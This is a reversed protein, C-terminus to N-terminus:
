TDQRAPRERASPDRAAVAKEVYAFAEEAYRRVRDLDPFPLAAAQEETLGTGAERRGLDLDPGWGWDQRISTREWVQRRAIDARLGTALEAIIQAFRDDWRAIHWLQWLLSQPGGRPRWRAQTEGVGEVCRLATMHWAHFRAAVDEPVTTM